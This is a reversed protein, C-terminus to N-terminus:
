AMSVLKKYSRMAKLDASPLAKMDLIKAVQGQTLPSKVDNLKQLFHGHITGWKIDKPCGKAKSFQSAIKRVMGYSASAKPNTITFSTKANSNAM